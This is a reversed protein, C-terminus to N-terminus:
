YACNNNNNNNNELEWCVYLPFSQVQIGGVLFFLYYFVLGDFCHKTQKLCGGADVADCQLTCRHAYKEKAWIRCIEVRCGNRTGGARRRRVRKKKQGGETFRDEVETAQHLNWQPFDWQGAILIVCPPCIHPHPHPAACVGMGGGFCSKIKNKKNKKKQIKKKNNVHKVM